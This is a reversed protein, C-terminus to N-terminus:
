TEAALSESYISEAAIEVCVLSAVTIGLFVKMCNSLGLYRLIGYQRIFPAPDKPNLRQRVVTEDYTPDPEQKDEDIAADDVDSAYATTAEAISSNRADHQADLMLFYPCSLIDCKLFAGAAADTLGM